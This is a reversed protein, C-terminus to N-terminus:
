NILEMFKKYVIDNKAQEDFDFVCFDEGNSELAHQSCGGNCLPLIKCNLCPKNKLKVTLRDERKSNWSIKGADDLVGERNESKFDRATCKYVEGNYNITAQNKKDAYCSGRLTNPISTDGASFGMYKFFGVIRQVTEDLGKDDEQWVKHFSIHLYQRDVSDLDNIDEIIDELGVLNTKTYNIRMTVPLRSRTLLKINNIIEDYSGRSKSVFRITDHLFRNGDLTIQFGDVNFRQFDPIMEESVLFGNTTFDSSLAIGMEETLKITNEMIPVIVNKYYLLPEGGFWSIRLKKVEPLEAFIGKLHEDIASITNITMKSDKIHSEYCYWCKFNCNMTPNIVLHYQSSDGDVAEMIKRVADIEDKDNDIVFGDEILKEYFTPHYSSLSDIDNNKEGSKVLDMLLPDLLLFRDSLSNYLVPKEQYSIVSNFQSTKM